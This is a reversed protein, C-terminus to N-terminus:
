YEVLVTRFEDLNGMHLTNELSLFRRVAQSRSGGLRNADSNRPLLILFRGSHTHSHKTKFKWLIEDETIVSVHHTAVHTCSDASGAFFGDLSQKLPLLLVLHDWGAVM